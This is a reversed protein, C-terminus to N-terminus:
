PNLLNYISTLARKYNSNFQSYNPTDAKPDTHWQRHADRENKEGEGKKKQMVLYKM